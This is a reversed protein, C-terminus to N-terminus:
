NCHPGGNLAYLNIGHSRTCNPMLTVANPAALHALIKTLTFKFEITATSWMRHMAWLHSDCPVSGADIDGLVM